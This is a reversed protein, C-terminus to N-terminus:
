LTFYFLLVCCVNSCFKLFFKRIYESPMLTPKRVGPCMYADDEHFALIFTKLRFESRLWFPVLCEVEPRVSLGDVFLPPGWVSDDGGVIKEIDTVFQVGPNVDKEGIYVLFRFQPQMYHMLSVCIRPFISQYQASPADNSIRTRTVFAWIVGDVSCYRLLKVSRQYNESNISLYLLRWEEGTYDSCMLFHIEEEFKVWNRAVGVAAFETSSCAHGVADAVAGSFNAAENFGDMGTNDEADTEINKCALLFNGGIHSDGEAAM